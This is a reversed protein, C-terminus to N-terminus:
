LIMSRITELITYLNRKKISKLINGNSFYKLYEDDISISCVTKLELSKLNNIILKNVEM